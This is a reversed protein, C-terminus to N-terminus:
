ELKERQDRPDQSVVLGKHDLPVSRVPLDLLELTEEQELLGKHVPFVM